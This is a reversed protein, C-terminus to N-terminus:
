DEGKLDTDFVGRRLMLGIIAYGIIDSYTDELPENRAEQGAEILNRLRAMKDWMRVLLASEPGFPANLINEHGYDHQKSIILDCVEAAINHVYDEFYMQEPIKNPYTFIGQLAPDEKFEEPIDGRSWDTARIMPPQREIEGM